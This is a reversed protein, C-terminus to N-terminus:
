AVCGVPQEPQPQPRQQTQEPQESQQEHTTQEQPPQPQQKQAARAANIKVFPHPNHQAISTSINELSVAIRHLLKVVEPSFADALVAHVAQARTLEKERPIRKVVSASRGDSRPHTMHLPNVCRRDGCTRFVRGTLLEAGPIAIRYVASHAMRNNILPQGDPHYPGIWVWHGGDAKRNINKEIADPLPNLTPM